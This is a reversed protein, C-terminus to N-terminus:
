KNKNLEELIMSITSIMYAFVGVTVILTCTVFVREILTEERSGILM